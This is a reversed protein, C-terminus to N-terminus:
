RAPDKLKSDSCELDTGSHMSLREDSSPAVSSQDLVDVQFSVMDYEETKM